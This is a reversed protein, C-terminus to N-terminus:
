DQRPTTTELQSETLDGLGMERLSRSLGVLDWVITPHYYSAGALLQGDRSFSIGRIQGTGGRLTAM